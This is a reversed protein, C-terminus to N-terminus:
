QKRIFNNVLKTLFKLDGNQKWNAVILYKNKKM